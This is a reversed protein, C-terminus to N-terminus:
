VPRDANFAAIPNREYWSLMERRRDLDESWRGYDQLDEPSPIFEPGDDDPSGGSIPPLAAAMDELVPPVLVTGAPISRDGDDPGDPEPGFPAPHTGARLMEVDLFVDDRDWAPSDGAVDPLAAVFAETAAEEDERDLYAATALCGTAAVHGLVREAAYASYDRERLWEALAALGPRLAPNCYLPISTTTSNM